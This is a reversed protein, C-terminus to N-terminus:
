EVEPLAVEGAGLLRARALEAADSDDITLEAVEEALLVDLEAESSVRFLLDGLEDVVEFFSEALVDFGEGPHGVGRFFGRLGLEGGDGVVDAIRLLPAVVALHLDAAVIEVAVRLPEE